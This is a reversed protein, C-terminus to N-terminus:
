PVKHATWLMANVPNCVAAALAAGTGVHQLCWGHANQLLGHLAKGTDITTQRTPVFRWLQFPEKTDCNHPAPRAGLKNAGALCAGNRIVLQGSGAWQLRQLAAAPKARNCPSAFAAQDKAGAKAATLCQGRSTSESEFVVHGNDSGVAPALVPIGAEYKSQLESEAICAPHPAGQDAQFRCVADRTTLLNRTFLETRLDGESLFHEAAGGGAFQLPLEALLAYPHVLRPGATLTRKLEDTSGCGQPKAKGPRWTMCAQILNDAAQRLSQVKVQLDGLQALTVGRDLLWVRAAMDRDALIDDITQLITGYAGRFYVLELLDPSPTLPQNPWNGVVSKSYPLIQFSVQVADPGQARKAVAGASGKLSAWDSPPVDSGGKQNYVIETRGSKRYEEYKSDASAAASWGVGSAKMSVAIERRKDRSQENFSLLGFAEAGVYIASVFSDGCRERFEDEGTKLFGLAQDTLNVFSKGKEPVLTEGTRDARAYLAFSQRNQTVKVSTVFKGKGSAGVGFVKGQASVDIDLANMLSYQDTVEVLRITTEPGGGAGATFDTLCGGTGVFEGTVSDFARGLTAVDRDAPIIRAGRTAGLPMAGPAPKAAVPEEAPKPKWAVYIAAVAALLLIAGVVLMRSRM